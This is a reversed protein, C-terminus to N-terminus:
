VRQPQWPDLVSVDCGEFDATNRTVVTLQHVGATAAILSDVTAREAPASLRTRSRICPDTKASAHVGSPKASDVTSSSVPV